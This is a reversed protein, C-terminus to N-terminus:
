GRLPWRGLLTYRTEGHVSHVLVLHRVALTIPTDLASEPVHDASYLLSLHPTFASPPQPRLWAARMAEALAHWLATLAPAGDGCCLALPQSGEGKRGLNRMRDFTVTFPAARVAAGARKAAAVADKPLGLYREVKQMSVHLVRDPRWGERIGSTAELTTTLSRIDRVGMPDPQIAFFVAGLRPPPELGPM